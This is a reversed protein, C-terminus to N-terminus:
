KPLSRGKLADIAVCVVQLSSKQDLGHDAFQQAKLKELEAIRDPTCKHTLMARCEHENSAVNVAVGLM